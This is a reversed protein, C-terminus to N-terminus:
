GVALSALLAVGRCIWHEKERSTPVRIDLVFNTSHGTTSLTGRREGTRYVPCAYHPPPALETRPIPKLWMAPAPSYLVQTADRV